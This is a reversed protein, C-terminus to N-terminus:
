RRRRKELFSISDSVVYLSEELEEKAEDLSDCKLLSQSEVQCENGNEKDSCTCLINNCDCYPPRTDEHDHGEESDVTSEVGKDAEM